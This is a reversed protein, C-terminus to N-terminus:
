LGRVHWVNANITWDMFAVHRGDPSPVAYSPRMSEMLNTLIRGELDVYLLLGRSPYRASVYWGRGDAAWVVGSLNRLTKITVTKEATEGRGDLPVVRISANRPDHNPIVIQSGNPSLDWDGVIAPSWATRALERGKGRVPHLEWFLFQQNQVTRLVCRGAPHTSCTYEGQVEVDPLITEPPGGELPIRM